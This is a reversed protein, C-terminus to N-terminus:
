ASLSKNGWRSDMGLKGAESKQKRKEISERILESYYFVEGTKQDNEKEFLGLSICEKIIKGVKNRTIGGIYIAARHYEDDTDKFRNKHSSIRRGYYSM